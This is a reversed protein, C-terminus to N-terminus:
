TRGQSAVVGRPYRGSLTTLVALSDQTPDKAAEAEIAALDRPDTTAIWYELPTSDIAVVARSDQAMLFAESYLGREQHLSAVLAMENDNLQLVEQLRAQDAGKQTLCWKISSNSLIAGAVKSKAFDDMNQSIAIASAFYKRFTRFVEAVFSAGAENELLKWCEDFVLFKKRSRDKQVERWIFDTIIFLCVSQLDPYAEMGKLDFAVVPKQFEITTDRDVFQGYPTGGCWPTLIRGYRRITVDENALLIERLVSLRPPKGSEYTKQIAEEVEARELRPLRTEDEEKTMLEILGTLFKIKHSSPTTEGPLLDFPNVTMGTGVTLPIYQGGLNDCLKKYSGGIDVIFIKPAEKLMQLLLINTLFSKGSGSGGSVVHNYNTLDQSFPDFRVLSGMRSRLLISPREHGSWPGYIPILDALTSTKMRKIRESTRANPIAIATFIDFAALSEEMAEAGGLERVRSLTQSVQADLEERSKSRLVINFSVQFVREGQAILEELLTEIDQFKAESEIDAVGSKKGRAMAFALRRQTQLSELEKQQDPIHVTLFLRSDFPLERLAAAMAAFTQDPLMKLSLVRYHMDSLSFGKEYILADTFLITSRIDEPDYNSLGVPRCPNWQEYILTMLEDAPILRSVLGLSGFNAMIDVQLHRTAAVEHALQQETVSPFLKSKSFLGQKGILSKAFPRRVFVKLRHRPILGQTDLERIRDARSKSVLRAAESAELVTLAEHAAATEANGAIIEQVFQVDTNPPIGNLLQATREALSNVAEDKWCTVDLPVLELGFGISGDTFVIFDKEFGWVQLKDALVNSM